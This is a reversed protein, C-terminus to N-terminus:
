LLRQFCKPIHVAKYRYGDAIVVQVGLKELSTLYRFITRRSMRTAKQMDLIVPSRRHILRLVQLQRGHRTNNLLQKALSRSAPAKDQLLAALVTLWDLDTLYNASAGARVSPQNKKAVGSEEVLNAADSGIM